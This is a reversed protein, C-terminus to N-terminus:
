RSTTQIQGLEGTQTPRSSALAIEHHGQQTRINKLRTSSHLNSLNEEPKGYVYHTQVPQFFGDPKTSIEMPLLNGQFFPLFLTSYNKGHKSHPGVVEPLPEELYNELDSPGTRRQLMVVLLTVLLYDPPTMKKGGYSGLHDHSSTSQCPEPPPARSRPTSGVPNTRM